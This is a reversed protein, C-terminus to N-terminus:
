HTDTIRQNEIKLNANGFKDYQIMYTTNFDDSPWKEPQPDVGLLHAIQPIYQHVWTIIVVRGGCNTFIDDVLGASDEECYKINMPVNYYKCTPDIMLQPRQSHDPCKDQFSTAYVIPTNSGIKESFYKPLKCAHECGLPICCEDERNSSKECHRIIYIVLPTKMGKWKENESSTPSFNPTDYVTEDSGLPGLKMLDKCVDNDMCSSCTFNKFEIPTDINNQIVNPEKELTNLFEKKPIFFYKILIFLILVIFLFFIM